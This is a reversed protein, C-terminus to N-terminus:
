ASMMRLADDRSKSLANLRVTDDRLSQNLVAVTNGLTELDKKNALHAAHKGDFLEVELKTIKMQDPNSSTERLISARTTEYDSFRGYLAIPDFNEVAKLKEPYQAMLERIQGSRQAMTNSLEKVQPDLQNFRETGRAVMNQRMTQGIDQAPLLGMSVLPNIM